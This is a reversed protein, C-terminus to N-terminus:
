FRGLGNLIVPGSLSAAETVKLKFHKFKVYEQGNAPSPFACLQADFQGLYPGLRIRPVDNNEYLPSVAHDTRYDDHRCNLESRATRPRSWRVVSYGM